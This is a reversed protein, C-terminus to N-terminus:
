TNDEKKSQAISELMLSIGYLLVVWCMFWGIALDCNVLITLAVVDFLNFRCKTIYRLFLM